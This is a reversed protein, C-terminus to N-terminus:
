QHTVLIVNIYKLCLVYWTSLRPICLLISNASLKFHKYNSPVLFSIFMVHNMELTGIFMVHNMELTGEKTTLGTDKFLYM